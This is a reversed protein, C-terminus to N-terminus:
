HLKREWPDPLDTPFNLEIANPVQFFKGDGGMLFAGSYKDGEKTYIRISVAQLTFWQGDLDGGNAHTLVDPPIKDREVPRLAGTDVLEKARASDEPLYSMGGVVWGYAGAGCREIGDLMAAKNPIEPANNTIIECRDGLDRFLFAPPMDELDNMEKAFEAIANLAPGVYQAAPRTM